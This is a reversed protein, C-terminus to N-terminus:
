IFTYLYVYVYFVLLCTVLSLVLFLCQYLRHCGCVYVGACRHVCYVFCLFMASYAYTYGYERECVTCYLVWLPLGLVVGDGGVSMCERM